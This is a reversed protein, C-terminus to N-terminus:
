QAGFIAAVGSYVGHNREVEDAYPVSTTIVVVDGLKLRSLKAIEEIFAPGINAVFMERPTGEPKSQPVLKATGGTKFQGGEGRILIRHNSAYYGTFVPSDFVLNELISEVQDAQLVLVQVEMDKVIKGLEKDLTEIRIGAM